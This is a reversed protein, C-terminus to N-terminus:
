DTKHCIVYDEDESLPEILQFVFDSTPAYDEDEFSSPEILDFVVDAALVPSKRLM